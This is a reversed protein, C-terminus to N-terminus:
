LSRARMCLLGTGVVKGLLMVERGRASHCGEEVRKM